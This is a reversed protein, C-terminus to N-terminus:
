AVAPSADRSRCSVARVVRGRRASVGGVPPMGTAHSAYSGRASGPPQWRLRKKDRRGCRFVVILEDFADAYEEAEDLSASAQVFTLPRTCSWASSATSSSWRAPMENTLITAAPMMMETRTIEAHIPRTAAATMHATPAPAFQLTASITAAIKFM